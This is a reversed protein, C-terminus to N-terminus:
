EVEIGDYVEFVVLWVGKLQNQFTVESRQVLCGGCILMWMVVMDTGM